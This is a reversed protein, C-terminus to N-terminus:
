QRLEVTAAVIAEEFVDGVQALLTDQQAADTRGTNRAIFSLGEARKDEFVAGVMASAVGYQINERGQLLSAFDLPKPVVAGTGDFRVEPGGFYVPQVVVDVGGADYHEMPTHHYGDFCLLTGIRGMRTEVPVLESKPGADFLMSEGPPIHVKSVRRLCRGQPSFVHATNFVRSGDEVLRGGRHPSEDMLPLCASGAVVYAGSERALAAFTEMYTQETEIAHEVFLLYQAAARLNQRQTDGLRGINREIIRGVVGSMKADSAAEDPYFPVFSLYMGVFEPFAVLTPLSADIGDLARDMLASMKTRFAEASLYDGLETKAQVAVLNVRM